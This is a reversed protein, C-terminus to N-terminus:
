KVIRLIVDNYIQGVLIRVVKAKLLDWIEKDTEAFCIIRERTDCDILIDEKECEVVTVLADDDMRILIDKVTM